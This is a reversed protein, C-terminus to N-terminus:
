LLELRWPRLESHSPNKSKKLHNKQRTQLFSSSPKTRPTLNSTSISNAAVRKPPSAPVEKKETPTGTNNSPVVQVKVSFPARYLVQINRKSDSHPQPAEKAPKKTPPHTHSKTKVGTKRKEVPKSANSPREKSKRHGSKGPNKRSKSNTEYM